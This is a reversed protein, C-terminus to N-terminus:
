ASFRHIGTKLAKSKVQGPISGMEFKKTAFAKDDRRDRIPKAIVVQAKLIKKYTLKRKM